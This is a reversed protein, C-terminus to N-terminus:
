LNHCLEICKPNISDDLSYIDLPLNRIIHDWKTPYWSMINKMEVVPPRLKKRAECFVNRADDEGAEIKIMPLKDDSRELSSRKKEKMEKKDKLQKNEWCIKAAMEYSLRNFKKDDKFMEPRDEAPFDDSNRQVDDKQVEEENETDAVKTRKKDRSKKPPVSEGKRKKQTERRILGQGVTPSHPPSMEREGVRVPEEQTLQRTVHEALVSASLSVDDTLDLNTAETRPM